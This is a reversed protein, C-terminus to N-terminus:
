TCVRGMPCVRTWATFTEMSRVALLNQSIGRAALLSADSSFAVNSRNLRGSQEFYITERGNILIESVEPNDLLPLVPGLFHRTSEHYIDRHIM